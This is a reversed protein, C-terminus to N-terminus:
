QEDPTQIKEEFDVFCDNPYLRYLVFSAVNIILIYLFLALLAFKGILEQQKTDM